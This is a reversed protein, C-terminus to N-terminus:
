PTTEEETWGEFYWRDTVYDYTYVERGTRFQLVGPPEGGMILSGDQSGGIVNGM